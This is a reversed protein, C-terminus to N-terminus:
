RRDVLRDRCHQGSPDATAMLRALREEAALRGSSTLCVQAPEDSSGVVRQWWAGITAELQYLSGHNDIIRTALRRKEGIGFQNSIRKDLMEVSWGRQKAARVVTQRPTDIFWVEDCWVDWQSEFLLPVDLVIVSADKDIANAIETKMRDRTEPHVVSELYRLAAKATEDDGFVIRGLTPRDIKGDPRLIAPGFRMVLQDIVASNALVDHAIRDANIWVAGMRQLIAAVASKGGAPQGCIGILIM